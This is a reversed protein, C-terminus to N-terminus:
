LDIDEIPSKIQQINKTSVHTYIETTRSSKHGLLEQIIRLDTGQELLHTAYSHRLWHLSVPKKIGTKLAANKLVKALSAPSYRNNRGQGEFLWTQPRYARYYSRLSELLKGPLPVVRDRRGKGQRIIILGRESDIDSPRLNLIESRRLGCAYITCLMARHKINVPASLLQKVESKSLVNPLKYEGRPREIKEIDIQRNHIRSFFLKISSAVQNQYSNSYGNNVLTNNFAVLDADEIEHVSKDVQILFRKLVDRYTSITSKSYRKQVLYQEFKLIESSIDPRVVVDVDTLSGKSATGTDESVKLKAEVKRFDLIAINKTAEQLRNITGISYYISWANYFPNWKLGNVTKLVEELKRNSVFKIVLWKHGKHISLDLNIRIKEM